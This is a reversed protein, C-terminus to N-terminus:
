ASPKKLAARARRATHEWRMRDVLMEGVTVHDLGAVLDSPGLRGERVAKFTKRKNFPEPEPAAPPPLEVPSPPRAGVRVANARKPPHNPTIKANM